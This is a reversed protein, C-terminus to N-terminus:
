VRFCMRQRWVVKGFLFGSERVGRHSCMAQGGVEEGWFVIFGGRMWEDKGVPLDRGATHTGEDKGVHLVRRRASGVTLGKDVVHIDALQKECV